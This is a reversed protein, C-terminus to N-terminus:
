VNGNRASFKLNCVVCVAAACFMVLAPLVRFARIWGLVWGYLNESLVISIFPDKFAAAAATHHVLEAHRFLFYPTPVYLVAGACCFWAMAAREVGASRGHLVFAAAILPLLVTYHYEYVTEYSLFFALTFLAVGWFAGRVAAKGERLFYLPATLALAAAVPVKAVIGGLGGLLGTIFAPLSFVEFNIAQSEASRMRMNLWHIANDNVFEPKYSRVPVGRYLESRFLHDPHLVVDILRDLGVSQPNLFPVTLFLVSVAAYVVGAWAITRRYRRVAFLAALAPLLVPKSFLSILIGAMLKVRLGCAAEPARELEMLDALVLTVALVALVHLQGAWLMLYVVPSCLLLCQCLARRVPSQETRGLLWGCYVLTGASMLTFVAYAAWPSFLALWSGMVPSVAPHYPFWSAYPGYDGARTFYISVGHALNIFSRPVSFFDFGLRGHWTGPLFADFFRFKLSLFLAATYVAAFLYLLKAKTLEKM